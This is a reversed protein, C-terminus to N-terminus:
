CYRVLLEMWYNEQPLVMDLLPFKEEAKIKTDRTMKTQGLYTTSLDSNEDFRNSYIIEAHVDKYLDLYNTKLTERNVGFDIDLTEGKEGKLKCYLERHLLYDLTNLDLKHPTKKNHKVYRIDSFTSWNEM